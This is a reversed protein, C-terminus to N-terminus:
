VRPPSLRTHRIYGPKYPTKVREPGGQTHNNGNNRCYRPSSLEERPSYVPPESLEQLFLLIGSIVTKILSLSRKLNQERKHLVGKQLPNGQRETTNGM